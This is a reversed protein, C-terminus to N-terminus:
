KNHYPNLGEIPFIPGVKEAAAKSASAAQVAPRPPPVTSTSVMAVAPQDVAMGDDAAATASKGVNVPSGIKESPYGVPEM